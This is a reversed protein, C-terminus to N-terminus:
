HDEQCITCPYFLFFATAWLVFMALTVYCYGEGTEDYDASKCNFGFLKWHNSKGSGKGALGMFFWIPLGLLFSFALLTSCRKGQFYWFVKVIGARIWSMFSPVGLITVIFLALVAGVAYVVFSVAYAPVIVCIAAASLTGICGVILLLAMAINLTLYLPWLVRVVWENCSCDGTFAAPKAWASADFASTWHVGFTSSSRDSDCTSAVLDFGAIVIDLAVSIKAAFQGYLWRLSFDFANWIPNWTDYDETPRTKALWLGMFYYVIAGPVVLGVIGLAVGAVHPWNGPPPPVDKLWLIWLTTPVLTVLFGMIITITKHAPVLPHWFWDICSDSRQAHENETGDGSNLRFARGARPADDLMGADNFKSRFYIIIVIALRLFTMMAAALGVADTVTGNAAEKLPSWNVYINMGLKAFALLYLLGISHMGARTFAAKSVSDKYAHGGHFLTVILATYSYLSVDCVYPLNLQMTDDVVGAYDYGTTGQEAQVHQTETFRTMPAFLSPLLCILQMGARVLFLVFCAVSMRYRSPSTAGHQIITELNLLNVILLTWDFFALFVIKARVAWSELQSLRNWVSYVLIVFVHVISIGLSAWTHGAFNDPVNKHHYLVSGFIFISLSSKVLQLIRRLGCSFYARQDGKERWRPRYCEGGDFILVFLAMFSSETIGSTYAEGWLKGGRSQPYFLREIYQWITCVLQLLVRAATIFICAYALMKMRPSLANGYTTALHGLHTTNYFIEGADIVAAGFLYSCYVRPHHDFFGAVAPARRGCPECFDPRQSPGANSCVACDSVTLLGAAGMKQVFYTHLVFALRFISMGFAVQGLMDQVKGGEAVAKISVYNIYINLGLKIQATMYLMGISTWKKQFAGDRYKRQFPKGGYFTILLFTNFSYLSSDCMYQHGDDGGFIEEQDPSPDPYADTFIPIALMGSLTITSIILQCISRIAFLAICAIALMYTLHESTRQSDLVLTLNAFTVILLVWDFSGAFLVWLRDKIPGIDKTREWVFKHFLYGMQFSSIAASILFQTRLGRDRALLREGDGFAVAAFVYLQLTSTILQLMRRVGAPWYLRTAAKEQYFLTYMKANGLIIVIFALWSDTTMANIFARSGKLRFSSDADFCNPYFIFSVCM